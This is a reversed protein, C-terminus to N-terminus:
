GPLVPRWMIMLGAAALAGLAAFGAVWSPTTTGRAPPALPDLVVARLPYGPRQGNVYAVDSLALDNAARQADEATHATVTIVLINAPAATVRVEHILQESSLPGHRSAAELVPDSEANAAAARIAQTQQAVPVAPVVVVLSNCTQMPPNMLAVATGALAGLMVVLGFVAMHLRATWEM